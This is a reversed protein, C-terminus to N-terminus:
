PTPPKLRLSFELRELAPVSGKPVNALKKWRLQVAELRHERTVSSWAGAEKEAARFADYVDVSNWGM